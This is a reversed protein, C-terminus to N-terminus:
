RGTEKYAAEGKRGIDRIAGKLIYSTISELDIKFNKLHMGEDSILRRLIENLEAKDNDMSRIQEEAVRIIREGESDVEKVEDMANILNGHHRRVALFSLVPLYDTMGGDRKLQISSVAKSGTESETKSGTESGAKLESEAILQNLYEKIIAYTFFASLLGHRTTEKSRMSRKKREDEEQIYEQFFRTAKGLDHTVGMLYAVDELIEKEQHGLNLARERIM